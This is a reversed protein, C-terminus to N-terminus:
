GQVRVKGGSELTTEFCVNTAEDESLLQASIEYRLRLPDEEDRVYEVRVRTLRPEFKEICSKINRKLEFIADPFRKALDNFDPLGYDPLAMASGQRTNLLDRLHILVSETLRRSDTRLRYGDGEAPAELREFFSKEYAM